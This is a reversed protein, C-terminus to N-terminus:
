EGFVLAAIQEAAAEQRSPVAHSYTNLTVM